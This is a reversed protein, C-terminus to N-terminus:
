AAILLIVIGLSFLILIAFLTINLKQNKRREESVEKGLSLMDETLQNVVSSTNANIQESAESVSLAINKEAEIVATSFAAANSTAESRILDTKDGLLTIIDRLRDNVLDTLRQISEVSSGLAQAMEDLNLEEVAQKFVEVEKVLLLTGEQSKQATAIAQAAAESSADLRELIGKLKGLESIHDELVSAASHSNDSQIIEM